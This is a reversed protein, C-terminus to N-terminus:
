MFRSYRIFPKCLKKAETPLGKGNGGAFQAAYDGLRISSIEGGGGEDAMEFLKQFAVLTAMKLPSAVGTALEATTYGAILTAKVTGMRRPWISGGLREITGSTCIGSKVAHFMYDTGATLLTTEAFDSAGQGAKAGRDEYISTISRIPIEPSELMKLEHTTGTMRAVAKDGQTDYGSMLPDVALEDTIEPLFLEHSAQEISYGVLSKIAQEVTPQILQVLAREHSTATTAKDLMTLIEIEECIV